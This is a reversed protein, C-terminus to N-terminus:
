NMVNMGHQLAMSNGVVGFLIYCLNNGKFKDVTHFILLTILMFSLLMAHAQLKHVRKSYFLCMCVFPSTLFFPLSGNQKNNNNNKKSIFNLSPTRSFHIRQLSTLPFFRFLYVAALTHTHTHQREFNM